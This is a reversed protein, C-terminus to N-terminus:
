HGFHHYVPLSALNTNPLCLHWPFSSLNCDFEIDSRLEVVASPKGAFSSSLGGSHSHSKGISLGPTMGSGKRDM